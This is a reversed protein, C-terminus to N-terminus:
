PERLWGQAEFFEAVRGRLQVLRRQVQDRSAGIHLGIKAQSLDEEFRLNYLRREEEDLTEVFSRVQASRERKELHSDASELSAADESWHLEVDEDPRERTSRGLQQLAVFFAIRLFYPKAPRARDFNGNRWQEVFRRFAEHLIEERDFASPIRISRRENSKTTYSLGAALRRLLEPGADLYLTRLADEESM